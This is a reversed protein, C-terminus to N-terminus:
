DGDPLRSELLQVRDFLYNAKGIWFAESSQFQQCERKAADLQRSLRRDSRSWYWWGCCVAILATLLVIDRITFRM